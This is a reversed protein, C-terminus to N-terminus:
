AIVEPLNVGKVAEALAGSRVMQLAKQIDPYFYRDDELRPVESRVRKRVAELPASSTLPALFDCAQAAALLEIAIVSQATEAM